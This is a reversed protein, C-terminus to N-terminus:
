SKIWEYLLLNSYIFVSKVEMCIFIYFRLFNVLSNNGNTDVLLAIISLYTM